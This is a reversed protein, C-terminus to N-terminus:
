SSRTKMFELMAQLANQGDQNDLNFQYEHPLKPQHDQPYFLRTVPVGLRELENAFPKSQADTLPDANGGTIYVPPFDQTVHYYPSMQRIVPDSFDSTGSYSWVAVDDGWGVIKPLTPDPHALGEMKYIGCNLVLGRLQSPALAPEIGVEKAYAENTILAAMQASFQSGASDGALMVKNVDVHFKKANDLIYKHAENFQHIQAPYSKAPALTYDLSIVIYGKSAILQYYPEANDKDGSIWAGGHTWILTPLPANTNEPYYVDFRTDSGEAYQQDALKTVGAPTHKELAQKVKASDNDFVYRIILAGPWPSVRFALLLILVVGLVSGISWLFGKRRYFPKTKKQSVKKNVVRKNTM